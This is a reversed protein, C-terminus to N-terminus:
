RTKLSGLEDLTLKAFTAPLKFSVDIAKFTLVQILLQHQLWQHQMAKSLQLPYQLRAVAQALQLQQVVLIALWLIAVAM